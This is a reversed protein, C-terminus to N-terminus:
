LYLEVTFYYMSDAGNGVFTIQYNEYDICKVYINTDDEECFNVPEPFKEPSNKYETFYNTLENYIESLDISAGTFSKIMELSFEKNQNFLINSDDDYADFCISLLYDHSGSSNNYTYRISDLNSLNMDTSNINDACIETIGREKNSPKPINYDIKYENLCSEMNKVISNNIELPTAKASSTFKTSDKFFSNTIKSCSAFCSVTLCTILTLILKKRM